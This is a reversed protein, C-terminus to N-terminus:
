TVREVLGRAALRLAERRSPAGPLADIAQLAAALRRDALARVQDCAGTAIIADCLQAAGAQDLARLDVEAITPDCAAAITFPLTVTGDLLDTGRAKGTVAPDGEIDLVDDLLQFAIGLDRGFAGAAGPDLEPAHLAGLQCAADFLAATKGIVRQEYRQETVRPDYADARQMLEGAGLSGAATALVAAVQPTGDRAVASFAAALLADGAATAALPGDTAWVTPQGRRLPARDLVDDHVLTAAHILEVAAAGALLSGGAVVDADGAVLLVLLPRLRKGGAAVVAQAHAGHTGPIAGTLARIEAEVARLGSALGPGAAALVEAVSPPAASVARGLVSAPRVM